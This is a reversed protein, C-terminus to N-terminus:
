GGGRRDAGERAAAGHLRAADGDEPVAPDAALRAACGCHPCTRSIRPHAAARANCQARWTHTAPQMGRVRQLNCAVHANYPANCTARWACTAPPAGRACATGILLLAAQPDRVPALPVSGDSLSTTVTPILPLFLRFLPYPYDSYPNHILAVCAQVPGILLPHNELTSYTTLITECDWQEVQRLACRTAVRTLANCCTARADSCTARATRRLANWVTNLM